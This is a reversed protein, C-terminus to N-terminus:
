GFAPMVARAFLETGRLDTTKGFHCVFHTVGADAFERVKKTVQEPTGAVAVEAYRRATPNDSARNRVLRQEIKDGDEDIWVPGEWTIEVPARGLDACRKRM